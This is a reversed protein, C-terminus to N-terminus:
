SSYLNSSLSSPSYKRLRLSPKLSQWSYAILVGLLHIMLGTLCRHKTHELEYMM